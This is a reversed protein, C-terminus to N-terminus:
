GQEQSRMFKLVGRANAFEDKFVANPLTSKLYDQFVIAGGGVVIIAMYMAPNGVVTKIFSNIREAVARCASDRESTFDWQRGALAGKGTSLVRDLWHAPFSEGHGAMGTVGEKEMAERILEELKAKADLVGVKETGSKSHNIVMEGEYTENVMQLSALDSTSGGIDVVLVQGNSDCMEQYGVSLSGDDEFAWDFWASLAEAYVGVSQVLPQAECGLVNVGGAEFNTRCADKLGENISGDERFYDRFPLTVAAKIPMGLLGTRALAHNFLVRNAISTPYDSNRLRMPTTVGASCTYEVGDVEYAGIRKGDASALGQGGAQICAPIKATMIRGDSDLWALKHDAYGNDNAVLRPMTSVSKMKKVTASM